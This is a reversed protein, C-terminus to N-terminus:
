QIETRLFKYGGCMDSNFKDIVNGSKLQAGGTIPM